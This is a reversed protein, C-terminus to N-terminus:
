AAAGRKAVLARNARGLDMLRDAIAGQDAFPYLDREDILHILNRRLDDQAQGNQWFRVMQARASYEVVVTEALYVIDARITPTVEGLHYEELLVGLFREVLSDSPEGSDQEAVEQVMDELAFALQEWKGKLAALIDELRKSLKAYRAPDADFNKRIHFRLAHEMDSAKTKASTAGRLRDLFDPATISVPTVKTEIDLATIHEDILRRVKAGYLSPDFGDLGDRYRRAAIRQILGFQKADKAYPLAEPRPMITDLLALFRKLLANFRARLAQDELAEVCAEVDADSAFTTIGAQAFV